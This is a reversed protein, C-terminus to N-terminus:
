FVRIFVFYSQRYRYNRVRIYNVMPYAYYGWAKWERLEVRHTKPESPKETVSNIEISKLKERRGSAVSQLYPSHPLMLILLASTRIWRQLIQKFSINRRKNPKSQTPTDPIRFPLSFELPAFNAVPPLSNKPEVLPSAVWPTITSDINRYFGGHLSWKEPEYDAM